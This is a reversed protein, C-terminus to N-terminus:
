APMYSHQMQDAQVTCGTVSRNGQDLRHLKEILMQWSHPCHQGLALWFLLFASGSACMGYGLLICIEHLLM